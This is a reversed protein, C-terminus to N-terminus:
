RLLGQTIEDEWLDLVTSEIITSSPKEYIYLIIIVLHHISLFKVNSFCHWVVKIHLKIIRLVFFKQLLKSRLRWWIM